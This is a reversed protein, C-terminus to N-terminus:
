RLDTANQHEGDRQQTQSLKKKCGMQSIPSLGIFLTEFVTESEAMIAVIGAALETSRSFLLVANM